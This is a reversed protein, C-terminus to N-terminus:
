KRNARWAPYDESLLKSARGSYWQYGTRREHEIEALSYKIVSDRGCFIPRNTGMEYFRAWLPPAQPEEVVVRDFGRPLSPDPKEVVKIGTLRTQEFWAVASEIADVVRTDQKEITMLFRVIGVSESGSLSIKEYARAPAPELTREDHQACWVTRKGNVVVQTKLICEVGKAVALEARRRRAEDVFSYARAKRAVDLVLTMVGAM